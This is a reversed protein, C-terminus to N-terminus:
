IQPVEPPRLGLRFLWLDLEDDLPDLAYRDGERYVPLRAPRCRKLSALTAAEPAVGAEGFRRAVEALTM